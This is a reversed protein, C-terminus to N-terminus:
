NSAAPLSDDGTPAGVTQANGANAVSDAIAAEDVDENIQQQNDPIESRAGEAVNDGNAVEVPAVDSSADAGASGDGGTTDAPTEGTTDDATTGDEVADEQVAGDEEDGTTDEAAAGDEVADAVIDEGDDETTDDAEDDISEAPVSDEEDAADVDPVDLLDEDDAADFADLNSEANVDDDDVGDEEVLDFSDDAPIPRAVVAIVLVLVFLLSIIFRVKM